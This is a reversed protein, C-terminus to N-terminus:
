GSRGMCIWVRWHILEPWELYQMTGSTNWSTFHWFSLGSGISMTMPMLILACSTATWVSACFAAPGGRHPNSRHCRHNNSNPSWWGRPLWTDMLGSPPPFNAQMAIMKPPPQAQQRQPQFQGHAPQPHFSHQQFQPQLQFQQQQQQLPDSCDHFADGSRFSMGTWHLTWWLKTTTTITAIWCSSVLKLFKRRNAWPSFHFIRNWGAPVLNKISNLHVHNLNWMFFTSECM